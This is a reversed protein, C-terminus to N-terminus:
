LPAVGQVVAYNNEIGRADAWARAMTWVEDFKITRTGDGNDEGILKRKM